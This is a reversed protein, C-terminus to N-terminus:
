AFDIDETRLDHRSISQGMNGDAGMSMRALGSFLIPGLANADFEVRRLSYTLVREAETLM